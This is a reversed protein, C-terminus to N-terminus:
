DGEHLYLSWDGYYMGDYYLLDDKISLVDAPLPGTEFGDAFKLEVTAGYTTHAWKLPGIHPGNVGWEDMDQEPDERGHFLYLYLGPETPKTHEHQKLVDRLRPPWPDLRENNM